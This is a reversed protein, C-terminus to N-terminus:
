GRNRQSRHWIRTSDVVAGAQRRAEELARQKAEEAKQAAIIKASDVVARAQEQAETRVEDVRTNVETKVEDLRENVESRIETEVSEVLSNEGSTGLLKFGVKPKTMSGTLTILVNLNEADNISLGLSNAQQVLSSLGANVTNGLAGSGLKSRPVLTSITYNMEQTLSHSGAITM